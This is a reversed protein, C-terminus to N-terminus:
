GVGGGDLGGGGGGGFYLLSWFISLILFLYWMPNLLHIIISCVDAIHLIEPARVVVGGGLGCGGGFYLFSWFYSSEYIGKEFFIYIGVNHCDVNVHTPM